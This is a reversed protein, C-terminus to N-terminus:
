RMNKTQKNLLTLTENLDSYSEAMKEAIASLQKGLTIIAKEQEEGNKKAIETYAASIKSSAETINDDWDIAFEEIKSGIEKMSNTMTTEFSKIQADMSDIAIKSQNIISNTNNEMKSAINTFQELTSETIYAQNDKLDKVM